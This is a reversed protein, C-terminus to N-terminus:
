PTFPQSVRRKSGRGCTGKMVHKGATPGFFIIELVDLALIFVKEKYIIFQENWTNTVDVFLHSVCGDGVNSGTRLGLTRIWM